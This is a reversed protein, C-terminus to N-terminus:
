GHPMGEAIYLAAKCGCHLAREYFAIDETKLADKTGSAILLPPLRRLLSDDAFFPSIMPNKLDKGENYAEPFYQYMNWEFEPHGKEQPKTALCEIFKKLFIEIPVMTKLSDLIESSGTKEKETTPTMSYM